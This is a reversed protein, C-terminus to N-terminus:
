CCVHVAVCLTRAPSDRHRGLRFRAQFIVVLVNEEFVLVLVHIGLVRILVKSNLVLVESQLQQPRVVCSICQVLLNFSRVVTVCHCGSVLLPAM